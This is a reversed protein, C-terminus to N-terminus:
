EKLAGATLGQIIQKQFLVFGILMPLAAISAGAMLRGWDISQKGQYFALGVPLTRHAEDNTFLFPFLFSNWNSLLIYITLVTLVPKCLPMVIRFLIYWEGAGDIRASDEIDTPVSMVYQRVLFVGFPTVIWPVILAYYTNLWGFADMMRYLPIMIVHPPIVLVMLVTTLALRKGFFERRALAYGGMFCFVVNGLAVVTAVIVSNLFYRGFEGSSLADAYNAFSFPASLLDYLTAYSQPQERLSLLLMWAMPFIMGCATIFLITYLFVTFLPKISVLLVSCTDPYIDDILESSQSSNTLGL